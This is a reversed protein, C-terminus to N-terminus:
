VVSSCLLLLSILPLTVVGFCCCSPKCFIQVPHNDQSRSPLLFIPSSWGASAFSRRSLFWCCYFFIKKRFVFSVTPFSFWWQSGTCSDITACPWVSLCVGLFSRERPSWVLDFLHSFCIGATCTIVPLFLFWHPFFFALLKPPLQPIWCRSGSRQRPLWFDCRQVFFLRSLLIHRRQTSGCSQFSPQLCSDTHFVSRRRSDPFSCLFCRVGVSTWPSFPSFWSPVSCIQDSFFWLSFSCYLCRRLVLKEILIWALKVDLGRLNGADSM